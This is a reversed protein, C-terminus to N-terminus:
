EKRRRPYPNSEGRSGTVPATATHPFAGPYYPQAHFSLTRGRRLRKERGEHAFIDADRYDPMYVGPNLSIDLHDM